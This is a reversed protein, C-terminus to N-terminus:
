DYRPREGSHSRGKYWTREHKRMLTRWHAYGRGTRLKWRLEAKEDHSFHPATVGHHMVLAHAVLAILVCLSIAWAHLEVKGGLGRLQPRLVFVGFLLLAAWWAIPALWSALWVLRERRSARATDPEREAM